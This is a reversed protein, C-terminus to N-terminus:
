LVFLDPQKNNLKRWVIWAQRFLPTDVTCEMAVHKTTERQEGHVSVMGVCDYFRHQEVLFFVWSNKVFLKFSDLLESCYFVV